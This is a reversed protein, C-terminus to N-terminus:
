SMTKQNKSFELLSKGGPVWMKIFICLNGHTKLNLFYLFAWFYCNENLFKGLFLFYKFFTGLFRMIGFM